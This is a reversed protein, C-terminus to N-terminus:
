GFRGLLRDIRFAERLSVKGIALFRVRETPSTDEGGEAINNSLLVAARKFPEVLSDDRVTRFDEDVLDLLRVAEQSVIM